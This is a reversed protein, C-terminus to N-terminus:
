HGVIIHYVLDTLFGACIYGISIYTGILWRKRSTERNSSEQRHETEEIRASNVAEQQLRSVELRDVKTSLATVDSKDAKHSLEVAIKAVDAKDAKAELKAELSAFGVAIASKLDAILEKVNFSVQLESDSTM